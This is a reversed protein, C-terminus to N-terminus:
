CRLCPGSVSHLPVTRPMESRVTQLVPFWLLATLAACQLRWLLVSDANSVEEDGVISELTGKSLSSDMGRGILHTLWSLWGTGWGGADTANHRYYKCSPISAGLSSLQNEDFPMVLRGDLSGWCTVNGLISINVVGLGSEVDAMLEAMDFKSLALHSAPDQGLKLEKSLIGLGLAAGGFDRATPEHALTVNHLAGSSKRHAGMGRGVFGGALLLGCIAAASLAVLSSLAATLRAPHAQHVSSLHAAVALLFLAFLFAEVQLATVGEPRWEAHERLSAGAVLWAWFLLDVAVVSLRLRALISASMHAYAGGGEPWAGAGSRVNLLMLAPYFLAVLVGMSRSLVLHGLISGDADAADSQGLFDNCGGKLAPLAWIFLTPLLAAGLVLDAASWGLPFLLAALVFVLIGLGTMQTDDGIFVGFLEVRSEEGARQCLTGHFPSCGERVLSLAAILGLLGLLRASLELLLLLANILLWWGM